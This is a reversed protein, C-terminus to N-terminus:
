THGDLPFLRTKPDSESKLPWLEVNLDMLKGVSGEGEWQSKCLGLPRRGGMMIDDNKLFFELKM